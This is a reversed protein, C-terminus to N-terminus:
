RDCGTIEARLSVPPSGDGNHSITSSEFQTDTEPAVDLVFDESHDYNVYSVGLGGIRIAVTCRGPISHRIVGRVKYLYTSWESAPITESSVITVKTDLPECTVDRTKVVRSGSGFYIRASVNFWRGQESWDCLAKKSESSSAPGEDVISEIRPRKFNRIIRTALSYQLIQPQYITCYFFGGEAWIDRNEKICKNYYDDFSYSFVKIRKAEQIRSFTATTELRALPIDQGKNLFTDWGLANWRIIQTGTGEKPSRVRQETVGSSISDSGYKFNVRATVVIVNSDVLRGSARKKYQIKKEFDAPNLSADASSATM